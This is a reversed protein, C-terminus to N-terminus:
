KHFCLMSLCYEKRKPQSPSRKLADILAAEPTSSSFAEHLLISLQHVDEFAIRAGQGPGPFM